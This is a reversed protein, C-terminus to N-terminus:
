PTVTSQIRPYTQLAQFLRALTEIDERAYGLQQATLIAEQVKRLPSEGLLALRQAAANVDGERQYIEAVMLVYDAQYDARLTEPTMDKPQAALIGWGLYLGLGLGVALTFLFGLVRWLRM